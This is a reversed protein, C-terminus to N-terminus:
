QPDRGFLNLKNLKKNFSNKQQSTLYEKGSGTQGKRIFSNQKYGKEWIMGSIHDFKNEYKKMFPYSCKELIEPFREEAVKFECFNIIKQLTGKLDNILDEYRLFLVNSDNEHQQWDAVHTFWSGFQVKGRMFYKDFFESFTGKFNLHSTYFYFYSVAVDEGDRAVYIYKCSGKPINKYSLHSKFIRPSPLKELDSGDMINYLILRDFWPSVQSIHPFDMNGDTTLQYLIMQMWTTGSRPYTVIFIDDPRSHFDLYASRNFDIASALNTLLDILKRLLFSIMKLGFSLFNKLLPKM